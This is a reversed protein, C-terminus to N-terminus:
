VRLNIRTEPTDLWMEEPVSRKEEGEGRTLPLPELTKEDYLEEFCRVSSDMAAWEEPTPKRVSAREPGKVAVLVNRKNPVHAVLERHLLHRYFAPFGCQTGNFNCGIYIVTESRMALSVLGPLNCNLPWSVFAVEISLDSADIENFSKRVFSIGKPIRTSHEVFLLSTNGPHRRDVACVKKAGLKLLLKSKSLDGAGMDWVTKGAVLPRLADKMNDCIHGYM